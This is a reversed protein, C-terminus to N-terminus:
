ATGSSPVTTQPRFDTPRVRKAWRRYTWFAVVAVPLVLLTLDGVPEGTEGVVFIPNLDFTGHFLGVLVLNRTLEYLVGLIVTYVTIFLLPVGLQAVSLEQVAVLVPVHVLAFLLATSVIGVAIRVRGTGLHAIAKNQLYGRFAFEEGIGVFIWLTVAAGLFQTFPAGVPLGMPPDTPLGLAPREGLVVLLVYGVVNVTLWVAVVAAVGSLVRERDLGVNAASLGEWRLVAWALLAVGTIAVATFLNGAFPTRPLVRDALAILVPFAVATALVFAVAPRLSPSFALRTAKRTETRGGTSTQAPSGNQSTM